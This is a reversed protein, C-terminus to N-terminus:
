LQWVVTQSRESSHLHSLKDQEVGIHEHDRVMHHRYQVDLYRLAPEPMSSKERQLRDPSTQNVLWTYSMLVYSSASQAIDTAAISTAGVGLLIHRLDCLLTAATGDHGPLNTRPRCRSSTSVTRVSRISNVFGSVPARVTTEYVLEQKVRAM